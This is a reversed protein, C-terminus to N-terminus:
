LPVAHVDDVVVPRRLPPPRRERIQAEVDRGPDWLGREVGPGRAQQEPPSQVEDGLQNSSRGGRGSTRTVKHDPLRMFRTRKIRVKTPTPTASAAGAAAPAASMQASVTGLLRKM